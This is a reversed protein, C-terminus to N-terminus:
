KINRFTLNIREGVTKKTKPVQHQWHHNLKGLMVLLSGHSLEITLKERTKIHRLQFRRTAGFNVSAIIPDKGLDKEDDQHWSISDNGDRYRNLLVSNFRADVKSEVQAKIEQLESTSENPQLTLGSFSYTKEPNGYWATLRPFPLVKGYMKMEEQKWNIKKRLRDFYVDSQSSDIFQPIHIYEGDRISQYESPENFLDLQNM